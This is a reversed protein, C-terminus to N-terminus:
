SMDHLTPGGPGTHGDTIGSSFDCFGVNV